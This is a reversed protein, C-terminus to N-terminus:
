LFIFIQIFVSFDLYMHLNKKEIGGSGESFQTMTCLLLMFDVRILKVHVFEPCRDLHSAM